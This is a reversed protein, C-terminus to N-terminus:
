PFKFLTDADIFFQKAIAGFAAEENATLANIWIFPLLGLWIAGTRRLDYDFTKQLTNDKYVYFRVIYGDKTSWVPTLTLTSYSIYGFIVAPISFPLKQIEARVYLGTGPADLREESENFPSHNKIVNRLSTYGGALASGKIQYYIKGYKKEPYPKGVQARPYNRYGFVCGNLIFIFGITLAHIKM